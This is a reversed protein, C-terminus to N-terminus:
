SVKKSAAKASGDDAPSKGESVVPTRHPTAGELHRAGEWEATRIPDLRFTNAVIADLNLIADFGTNLATEIGSQARRRMRPSNNRLQVAQALLDIQKQLDSVFTPPLGFRIFDEQRAAAQSVFLRARTLVATSSKRPPMKFPNPSGDQAVVRRATHAIAKMADSVARRTAIAVRQSDARALDRKTLQDEIAAVASTVVDFMARGNSAESILARNSVGFDRVRIFMEYRFRQQRNM